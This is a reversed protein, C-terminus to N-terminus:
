EERELNGGNIASELKSASGEFIVDGHGEVKISPEQGIDGNVTYIYDEWCDRTGASYLYIGGVDDKFHATLQAALCSMGNAIKTPGGISIGNVIERNACFEALALGHGDLYGDMQRYIVVIEKGDGDNIVTLCRTGM